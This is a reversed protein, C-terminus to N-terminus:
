EEDYVGMEKMIEIQADTYKNTGEKPSPSKGGGAKSGVSAAKVRERMAIAKAREKPSQFKREVEEHAKKFAKPINKADNLNYLSLENLLAKYRVDGPDNSPSYEKHTAFFSNIFENKKDSDIDERSIFGLEKALKKFEEVSKPDYQELLKGDKDATKVVTENVAEKRQRALEATKRRYDADKMYGSMLEDFTVKSGDALEILDEEESSEEDEDSEEDSSEEGEENESETQDSQEEESPAEEQTAENEIEEDKVEPKTEM